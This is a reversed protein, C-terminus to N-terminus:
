VKLKKDKFELNNLGKVAREICRDDFYEFFAYGKNMEPNAPDKVLNFAKLRGFSECMKKVDAESMSFPINGM